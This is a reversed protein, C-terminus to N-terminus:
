KCNPDEMVADMIQKLFLNIEEESDPCRNGIYGRMTKMIENPSKGNALLECAMDYMNDAWEQACPNLSETHALEEGSGPHGLQEKIWRMLNEKSAIKSGVEDVHWSNTYELTRSESTNANVAVVSNIHFGGLHEWYVYLHIPQKKFVFQNHGDSIDKDVKFGLSYLERIWEPGLRKTIESIIAEYRQEPTHAEEVLRYLKDFNNIM